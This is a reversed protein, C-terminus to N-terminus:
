PLKTLYKRKKSSSIRWRNFLLYVGMDNMKNPGLSSAGLELSPVMSALIPASDITHNCLMLFMLRKFIYEIYHLSSSDNQQPSAEMQRSPSERQEPAVDSQVDQQLPVEAVENTDQQDSKPQVCDISILLPIFKRANMGSSEGLSVASDHGNSECPGSMINEANAVFFTQLDFLFGMLLCYSPYELLDFMSDVARQQVTWSYQSSSVSRLGTVINEGQQIQIDLDGDFM